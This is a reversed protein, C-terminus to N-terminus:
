DLKPNAEPVPMSDDIDADVNKPKIPTTYGFIPEKSLSVLPAHKPPELTYNTTADDTPGEMSENNPNKFLDYLDSSEPIDGAM